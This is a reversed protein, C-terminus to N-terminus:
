SRFSPLKHTWGEWFGRILPILLPFQTQFIDKLGLVLGRLLSFIFMIPFQWPFSYRRYVWIQNRIRLFRAGPRDQDMTLSVKHWMHARPAANFKIGARRARWCYDVEEFYMFFSSDFFGIKEFVDRHILMACGNIFDVPMSVPYSLQRKHNHFPDRTILTGPILYTGLFWITDPLDCYLILPSFMLVESNQHAAEDFERLFNPAVVTDNSMLLLWTAGKSLALQSGQNLGHAYGLVGEVELVFLDPGFRNRLYSVSDDSSGNDVVIIQSLSAGSKLFSELCCSTDDKLNFNVIIIQCDPFM